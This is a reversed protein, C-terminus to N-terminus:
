EIEVIQNEGGAIQQAIVIVHAPGEGRAEGADEHVLELVGVGQLGLNEPAEASLRRRLAGGGVPRGERESRAGEEEDAIGLLRDIAEATGVDCGVDAGALREAGLRCVAYERDSGIEAGARRDHAVHVVAEFSRSESSFPWGPKWDRSGKWGARASPGEIAASPM